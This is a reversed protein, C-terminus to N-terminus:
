QENLKRPGVAFRDTEAIERIGSGVASVIL